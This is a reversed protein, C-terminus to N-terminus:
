SLLFRALGIRTHPNTAQAVSVLGGYAYSRNHLITVPCFSSLLHRVACGTRLRARDEGLFLTQGYSEQTLAESNSLNALLQAAARVENSLHPFAGRYSSM